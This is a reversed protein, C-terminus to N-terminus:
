LLVRKGQKGLRHTEFPDRLRINEPTRRLHAVSGAGSAASCTSHKVNHSFGRDGIMFGRKAHTIDFIHLWRLSSVCVILAGLFTLWSAFCSADLVSSLCISLSLSLSPPLSFTRFHPMGTKLWKLLSRRGSRSSPLSENVPEVPDAIAATVGKM